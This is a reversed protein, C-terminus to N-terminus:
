PLTEILKRSETFVVESQEYHTQESIGYMVWDENGASLGLAGTFSLGRSIRIAKLLHFASQQQKIQEQVDTVADNRMVVINDGSTFDVAWLAVPALNRAIQDYVAAVDPATGRIATAEAALHHVNLQTYSAPLWLAVGDGILQKWGAPPQAQPSSDSTLSCRTALVIFLLLGILQKSTNM